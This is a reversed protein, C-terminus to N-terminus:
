DDVGAFYIAVPALVLWAALLCLVSLPVLGTVQLLHSVDTTAFWATRIWELLGARWAALDPAPVARVITVVLWVAVSAAVGQIFALPRAAARAADERARLQARWWVVGSPPIHAEGWALERDDLLATAVEVLDTCVGCSTVHARLGSECRDPWRRASIADLVDEECGCEARM